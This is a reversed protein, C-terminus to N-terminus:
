SYAAGAAFAKGESNSSNSDAIWLIGGLCSCSPCGCICVAEYAEVTQLENINTRKKLTKM